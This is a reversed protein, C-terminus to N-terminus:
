PARGAGGALAIHPDAFDRWKAVLLAVATGAAIVAVAYVTRRTPLLLRAM